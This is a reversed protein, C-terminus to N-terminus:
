TACMSIAVRATRLEVSYDRPVDITFHMRRDGFGFWSRAASATVAVGSSSQEAAFLRVAQSLTPLHLRAARRLTQFMAAATVCCGTLACIENTIFSERGRTMRTQAKGNLTLWDCINSKDAACSMAPM